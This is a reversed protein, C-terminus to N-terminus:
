PFSQILYKEILECNIHILNGYIKFRGQEGYIEM